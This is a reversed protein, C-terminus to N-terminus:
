LLNEFALINENLRVLVHTHTRQNKKTKHLLTQRSQYIIGM